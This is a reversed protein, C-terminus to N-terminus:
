GITEDDSIMDLEYKLTDCVVYGDFYCTRWFMCEHPPTYDERNYDHCVNSDYQNCYNVLVSLAHRVEDNDNM